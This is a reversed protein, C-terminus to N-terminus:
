EDNDSNGSSSENDDTVLPSSEESRQENQENGGCKNKKKISMTAELREVCPRLHRNCYAVIRECADETTENPFALVLRFWNQLSFASGPLCYVSEESILGRVFQTEDGFLSPDFGVMMYLAGQPKLPRLGPVRSLKDYVISANTELLKKTNEFFESPTDRLISPLAGQILACPGVIKQSLAVIGKKVDSLAGYRDHVILWGLRWGPVLYRKGIGDCTIIPVKPSLTAMPHFRVGEGYVLDGYIEDAIIPVKHKQALELIKELHEKPFVIGTPNSPNNVIIARTHTDILSEFHALDILGKDDMELRYQRTEIGHPHCLTSYLPFGPRPVLVNQGPDAIAVIAM